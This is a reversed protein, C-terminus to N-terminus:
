SLNSIVRFDNCKKCFFLKFFFASIRTKIERAKGFILSKRVLIVNIFSSADRYLDKKVEENPRKSNCIKPDTLSRINLGFQYVRILKM